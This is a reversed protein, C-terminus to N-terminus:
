TTHRYRALFEDGSIGKGADIDAKASRIEELEGPTSLIELTEELAEIDDLSILMAVPRGKRTIIVREHEREIRDLMGSLHHRVSALPEMVTM